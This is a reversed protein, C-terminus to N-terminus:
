LFNIKYATLKAVENNLEEGCYFFQDEAEDSYRCPDRHECDDERCTVLHGDDVDFEIGKEYWYRFLDGISGNGWYGGNDVRTAVVKGLYRRLDPGIALLWDTFDEMFASFTCWPNEGTIMDEPIRHPSKLYDLTPGFFVTNKGSPWNRHDENIRFCIKLNEKLWKPLLRDRHERSVNCMSPLEFDPEDQVDILTTSDELVFGDIM